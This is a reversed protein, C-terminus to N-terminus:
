LRALTGVQYYWQDADRELCCPEGSLVPCAVAPEKVYTM